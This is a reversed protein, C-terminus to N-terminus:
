LLLTIIRTFCFEKSYSLTSLSPGVQFGIRRLARVTSPPTLWKCLLYTKSTVHASWPWPWWDLLFVWRLAHLGLSNPLLACLASANPKQEGALCHFDPTYPTWTKLALVVIKCTVTPSLRPSFYESLNSVWKGIPCHPTWSMFCSCSSLQWTIM